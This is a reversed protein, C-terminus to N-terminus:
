PAWNFEHLEVKEWSIYFCLKILVNILALQGEFCENYTDAIILFDDLYEVYICTFGLRKMIRSVASSLRQFHGSIFQMWLM